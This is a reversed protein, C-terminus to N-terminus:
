LKKKIYKHRYFFNYIFFYYFIFFINIIKLFINNWVFFAIVMLERIISNNITLIYYLPMAILYKKLFIFNLTIDIDMLVINM